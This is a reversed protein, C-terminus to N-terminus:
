RNTLQNECLVSFQQLDELRLATLCKNFVCGTDLAYHNPVDVRGELAAWHGFIIKYHNISTNPIHYWPLFGSPPPTAPGTNKFDLKGESTCFRMRTFANLIFRIRDFGKLRPDWTDPHNGYLHPLFIPLEKGQFVNEAEIALQKALPLDWKPYIGAHSMVFNSDPDHHLLPRKALWNLLFPKDEAQLIDEFTHKKPDFLIQNNDIALLSLDHNGLVAIVSDGLSAVFRLTKLSEKGRNVLDGTFWLTDKAPNFQIKDLLNMLPDFCGQLDGIAYTSM